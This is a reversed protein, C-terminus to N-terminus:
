MAIKSEALQNLLQEATTRGQLVCDPISIGEYSSGTLLVNPFEQNFQEKMTSMRSAHGITYQPMAEKWRAVTTLLPQANLGVARELDQLVIKEIESDPLEVISEDGVRGIYVRLLEHGDPSVNDWKRHSWTCSTIAFHSNRSVFFNLADEYKQMSGKEFAMTVTAITAYNMDPAKLMTTSDPFIKKTVNFPTTVVIKDAQISTGDNLEILHTDDNNKEIFNV